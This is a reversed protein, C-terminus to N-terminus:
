EYNSLSLPPPPPLRCCTQCNDCCHKHTQDFLIVIGSSLQITHRRNSSSILVLSGIREQPDRIRIFRDFFRVRKLSYLSENAAGASLHLPPPSPPPLSTFDSGWTFIICHQLNRSPIICFVRFNRPVFSCLFPFKNSGSSPFNVTM